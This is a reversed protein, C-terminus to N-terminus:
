IILDAVKPRRRISRPQGVPVQIPPEPVLQVQEPEQEPEPVPVPVPEPEPEPVPVPEPVPKKLIPRKRRVPETRIKERIDMLAKGLLNQGTWNLPNKSQIDDISIGIGILNDNPIYTGLIATKTQLLRGALEPYQKFKIINIDYLLRRVLDNWKGDDKEEPLDSMSYSIAGPEALMIKELNNKDDFSKAIEGYLAQQVSNYMTGNFELEVTWKLSLYGYENTESFLIVDQDAKIEVLSKLPTKPLEGVRVYQEQLTFPREHLFYFSYPFKRQENMQNFDIDRISLGKEVYIQKVPFRISQLKVDLETVKRNLRIIESDTLNASRLEKRADEFERNVVAINEMRKKESIDIEEYTPKRYVPLPITKITAGDKNLEILNGDDDYSFLNPKKAKGKYYRKLEEM